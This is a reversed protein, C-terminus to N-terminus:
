QLIKIGGLWHQPDPDLIRHKKVELIRSGSHNKGSGPDRIGFM